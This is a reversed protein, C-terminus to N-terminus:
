IKKFSCLTIVCSFAVVHVSFIFALSPFLWVRYFWTFSLHMLFNIKTYLAFSALLGNIPLQLEKKFFFYFFFLLVSSKILPVMVCQFSRSWVQFASWFITLRLYNFLTLFFVQPLGLSWFKCLLNKVIVCWLVWWYHFFM